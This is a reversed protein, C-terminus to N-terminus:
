RSNWIDTAEYGNLILVMNM